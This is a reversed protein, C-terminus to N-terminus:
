NGRASAAIEESFQKMDLELGIFDPGRQINFRMVLCPQRLYETMIRFRFEERDMVGNSVEAWLEDFTVQRTTDPM